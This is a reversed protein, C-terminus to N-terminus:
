RCGVTQHQSRPQNHDSLPVVTEEEDKDGLSHEDETGDLHNRELQVVIHEWLPALTHAPTHGQGGHEEYRAVHDVHEERQLACVFLYVEGCM